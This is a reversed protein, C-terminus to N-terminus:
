AVVDHVILPLRGPRLFDEAGAAAGWYGWLAGAGGGPREAGQRGGVTGVGGWGRVWVREWFVM